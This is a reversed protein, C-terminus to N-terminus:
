IGVSFAPTTTVSLIYIQSNSSFLFILEKQQKNHKTQQNFLFSIETELESSYRVCIYNVQLILFITIM